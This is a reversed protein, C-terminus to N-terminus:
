MRGKDQSGGSPCRDLWAALDAPRYRVASGIKIYRPGKKVLRWRRVSAVSLRTMRAIDHEDLLASQPQNHDTGMRFESNGLM